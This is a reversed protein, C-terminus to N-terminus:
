LFSGHWKDGQSDWQAVSWSKPDNVALRRQLPRPATEFQYCTMTVHFTATKRFIMLIRASVDVAASHERSLAWQQNQLLLSRMHEACSIAFLFCQIENCNAYCFIRDGGLCLNRTMSLGSIFTHQHTSALAMGAKCWIIDRLKCQPGVMLINLSLVLHILM